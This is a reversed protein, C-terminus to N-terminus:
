KEEGLHNNLEKLETDIEAWFRHSNFRISEGLIPIAIFLNNSSSGQSYKILGLKICSDIGDNIQKKTLKYEYTLKCDSSTLKGRLVSHGSVPSYLEALTFLVARAIIGEDSTKLTLTTRLDDTGSAGGISDLKTIGTNKNLLAYLGDNIDSEIVKSQRIVSYTAGALLKMYYPIGACVWLLHELSQKSLEYKGRIKLPEVIKRAANEAEKTKCSFPTLEIHEISNYFPSAPNTIFIEKAATSGAFVVGVNRRNSIMERMQWLITNVTEKNEESDFYMSAFKDVEDFLFIVRNVIGVNEIREILLEALSSMFTGVDTEYDLDKGIDNFNNYLSRLEKNAFITRLRKWLWKNFDTTSKIKEDLTFYIVIIDRGVKHSYSDLIRYLMTTKGSRRPSTIWISRLTKSTILAKEIKREDEIRPVYEDGRMQQEPFNDFADEIEDPTLKNFSITNVLKINLKSSYKNKIGTISISDIDIEINFDELDKILLEFDIPIISEELFPGLLENKLKGGDFRLPGKPPLTIILTDPADNKRPTICLRGKALKPTLIELPGVLQLSAADEMYVPAVKRLLDVFLAYPKSSLSNKLDYLPQLLDNNKDILAKESIDALATAKRSDLEIPSFTLCKALVNKAHLSWCIYMFYARLEAQKPDGSFSEWLVKLTYPTSNGLGMFVINFEEEYKNFENINNHAFLFSDGLSVIKAKPLISDHEIQSCASKFFNLLNDFAISKIKAVNLIEKEVNLLHCLYAKHSLELGNRGEIVFAYCWGILYLSSLDQKGEEDTLVFPSSNLIAKWNNDKVFGIVKTDNLIDVNQHTSSIVFSVLTQRIKKLRNNIKEVANVEILDTTRSNVQDENFIFTNEVETSETIIVLGATTFASYIDHISYEGQSPLSSWLDSTELMLENFRSNKDLTDSKILNSLFTEALLKLKSYYSPLLTKSRSLELVLPDIAQQWAFSIMQSQQEHPYPIKNYYFEISEDIIKILRTDNIESKKLRQLQIIHQICQKMDDMLQAHIAELKKIDNISTNSGTIISVRRQLEKVKVQEVAERKFTEIIILLETIFQNLEYWKQQEYLDEVKKLESSYLSRETSSMKLISDTIESIRAKFLESKEEIRKEITRELELSIEDGKIETLLKTYGELIDHELYEKAIDTPTYNEITNTLTDYFLDDNSITEGKVSKIFSRVFQAPILDSSINVENGSLNKLITYNSADNEFSVLNNLWFHFLKSDASQENLLNKLLEVFNDKKNEVIFNNNDEIYNEIEEIKSRVTNKINKNYESNKKLHEPINVKWTSLKSDLDLASVMNNFSDVFKNLDKEKIYKLLPAFLDNYAESWIHAYTTRGGKKYFTLINLLDSIYKESIISDTEKISLSSMKRILFSYGNKLAQTTYLNSIENLFNSLSRNTNSKFELFSRSNLLLHKNPISVKPHLVLHIHALTIIPKLVNHKNILLDILQTPLFNILTIVAKLQNISIENSNKEILESLERVNSHGVKVAALSLMDDIENKAKKYLFISQLDQDLENRFYDSNLELEKVHEKIKQTLKTLASIGKELHSIKILASNCVQELDHISSLSKEIEDLYIEKAYPSLKINVLSIFINKTKEELQEFEIILEPIGNVNKFNPLILTFECGLIELCPSVFEFIEEQFKNLVSNIISFENQVTILNINIQEINAECNNSSLISSSKTTILQISSRIKAHSSNLQKRILCFSEHMPNNIEPKKETIQLNTEIVKDNTINVKVEPLPSIVWDNPILSDIVTTANIKKLEQLIADKFNVLRKDNSGTLVAYEAKEILTWLFLPGIDEEQLAKEILLDIKDLKPYYKQHEKSKSKVIDFLESFYNSSIEFNANKNIIYKSALSNFPAIACKNPNSEFLDIWRRRFDGEIVKSALTIIIDEQKSNKEFSMQKFLLKIKKSPSQEIQIINKILENNVSSKGDKSFLKPLNNLPMIHSM